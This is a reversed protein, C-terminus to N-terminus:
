DSRGFKGGDAGLQSADGGWVFVSANRGLLDIGEGVLEVAVQVEILDAAKFVLPPHDTSVVFCGNQSM